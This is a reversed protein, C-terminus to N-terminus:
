VRPMVAGSNDRPSGNRCKTSCCSRPTHALSATSSIDVEGAEDM